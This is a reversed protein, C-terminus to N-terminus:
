RPTCNQRRRRRSVPRQRRQDTSIAVRHTPPALPPGARHAVHQTGRRRCKRTHGNATRPHSGRRWQRPGTARCGLAGARAHRRSQPVAGARCGRSSCVACLCAHESRVAVMDPAHTPAHLLSASVNHDAGATRRRQRHQGCRSARHHRVAQWGLARVVSSACSNPASLVRTTTRQHLCKQQQRSHQPQQVTNRAPVSRWPERPLPM